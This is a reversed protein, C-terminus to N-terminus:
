DKGPDNRKITISKSGNANSYIIHDDKDGIFREKLQQHLTASQKKGNVTLEENNLTFTKVDKAEAVDNEELFELISAIDDNMYGPRLTLGHLKSQEMARLTVAQMDRNIKEMDVKALAKEIDRNIKEM